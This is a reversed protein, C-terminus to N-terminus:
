GRYRRDQYREITNTNPRPTPANAVIVKPEKSAGGGSNNTVNNIVPAPANQSAPMNELATGTPVPQGRAATAMMTGQELSDSTPTSGRKAGSDPYLMQMSKEQLEEPVDQGNIKTVKGMTVTAEVKSPDIGMEQAIQEVVATRHDSQEKRQEIQNQRRDSADGSLGEAQEPNSTDTTELKSLDVNAGEAQLKQIAEDKNQIAKVLGANKMAAKDNDSYEDESKDGLLEQYNDEAQKEIEARLEPNAEEIKDLAVQAAENSEAIEGPDVPIADALAEGAKGGLWSGGFYGLAGGIIGGIATGVIPVVSGIAAGAAAGAIAGGAGGAGSGIAEGKQSQAEEASIELNEMKNEASMVGTVAEYAGMGVGLAAGGLRGISGAAGKMVGGGLLGKGTGKLANGIRGLRSKPKRGRKNKGKNKGGGGGFFGGGGGGGGMGGNAAVDELIDKIDELLEVQKQGTTEKDIGSKFTGDGPKTSTARAQAVKSTNNNTTTNETTKKTIKNNNEETASDLAKSTNNSTKISDTKIKVTGAKIEKTGGEITNTQIEKISEKEKSADKAGGEITNTQIEKISEKEKSADKTKKSEAPSKVVVEDGGILQLGEAGVAAAMGKAQDEKAIEMRANKAQQADAANDGTGLVKSALSSMIGGGGSLGGTNADGFLRTPSFAQKVATLGTAGQDINLAEKIRSGSRLDKKVNDLGLAQNIKDKNDGAKTELRAVQKSIENKAKEADKGKLDQANAMLEVLKKLEAQTEDGEKEFIEQLTGANDGINKSLGASAKAAGFGLTSTNEEMAGITKGKRISNALSAVRSESDDFSEETAYQGSTEDRFKERGQKDTEKRVLSEGGIKLRRMQNNANGRVSRARVDKLDENTTDSLVETSLNRTKDYSQMGESRSDELASASGSQKLENDKMSEERLDKKRTDKLDDREAM